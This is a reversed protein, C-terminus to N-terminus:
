NQFNHIDIHILYSIPYHLLNLQNQLNAILSFILMIILRKFNTQNYKYIYLIHKVLHKHKEMFTYPFDDLHNDLHCVM